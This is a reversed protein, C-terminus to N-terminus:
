IFIKFNITEKSGLIQFFSCFYNNENAWSETSKKMDDGNEIDYCIQFVYKKAEM